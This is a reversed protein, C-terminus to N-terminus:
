VEDMGLSLIPELLLVGIGLLSLEEAGAEVGVRGRRVRLGREPGATGLGASLVIWELM